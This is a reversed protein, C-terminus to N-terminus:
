KIFIDLGPYLILNIFVLLKKKPKVIDDFGNYILNINRDLKEELLTARGESVTIIASATKTWKKEFFQDMNKELRQFLTPNKEFRFATSWGDRYDAIWPINYDTSLRNSLKFM